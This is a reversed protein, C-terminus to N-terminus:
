RRPTRWDEPAKKVRGCNGSGVGRWVGVLRVESADPWASADQLAGTRQRKGLTRVIGVGSVM